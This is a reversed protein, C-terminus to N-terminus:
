AGEAESLAKSPAEALTKQEGARGGKKIQTIQTIRRYASLDTSEQREETNMQTFRHNRNRKEANERDESAKAFSSRKEEALGAHAM